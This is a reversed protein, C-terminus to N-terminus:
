SFEVPENAAAARRLGDAFRQAAAAHGGSGTLSALQDIHRLVPILETLRNALPLLDTVAIEGDCDSHALLTRIPDHALTSWPIGDDGYTYGQMCDLDIGIAHAVAVRFRNFASCPGRWCGHSVWLGM